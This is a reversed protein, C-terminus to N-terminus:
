GLRADVGPAWHLLPDGPVEPLGLSSLLTGHQDVLVADSLPWPEHEVPVFALRRGILTWARWRGTLWAAIDVDAPPKPRGIGISVNQEPAAATLRRCTHYTLQRPTRVAQATAWRYPLGLAVNAAITTSV